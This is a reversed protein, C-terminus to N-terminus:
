NCISSYVHLLCVQSYYEVGFFNQNQYVPQSCTAACNEVTQNNNGGLAPNTYLNDLARVGNAFDVWCGIYKYNGVVAPDQLQRKVLAHGELVDMEQRFGLDRPLALAPSFLALGALFM